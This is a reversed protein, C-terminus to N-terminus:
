LTLNVLRRVLQMLLSMTEYFCAYPPAPFRTDLNFCIFLSAAQRPVFDCVHRPMKVGAPQFIGFTLACTQCIVFCKDINTQMEISSLLPNSSHHNLSNALQLFVVLHPKSPLNYFNQRWWCIGMAETHAPPNRHTITLRGASSTIIRCSCIPTLIIVVSM